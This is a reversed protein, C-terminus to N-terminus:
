AVPFHTKEEPQLDIKELMNYLLLVTNDNKGDLGTNKGQLIRLLYPM